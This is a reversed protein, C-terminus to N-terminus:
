CAELQVAFRSAKRRALRYIAQSTPDFNPQFETTCTASFTSVAEATLVYPTSQRSRSEGCYFCICAPM